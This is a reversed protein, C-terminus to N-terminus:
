RRSSGSPRPAAHRNWEESPARGKEVVVVVAPEIQEDDVAVDVRLDVRKSQFVDSHAARAAKECGALARAELIDAGRGAVSQCRRAHRAARRDAIEVVVAADVHDHVVDVAGM